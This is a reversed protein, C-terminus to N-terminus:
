PRRAVGCWVTVEGPASSGPEPRWQQPQVVGPELLELGALFGAVQARDRLTATSHMRQNLQRTM